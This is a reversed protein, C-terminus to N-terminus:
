DRALLPPLPRDPGTLLHLYQRLNHSVDTPSLSWAAPDWLVDLHLADTQHRCQLAFTGQPLHVNSHVGGDLRELLRASPREGPGEVVYSCGVMWHARGGRAEADRAVADSVSAYDFHRHAMSRLVVDRVHRLLARTTSRPDIRLRLHLLMSLHAPMSREGASTRNSVPVNFVRDWEGSVRALLLAQSALVAAFPSCGLARCEAALRGGDDVRELVSAGPVWHLKADPSAPELPAGCLENRWYEWSASERAASAAERSLYDSFRDGSPRSPQRGEVIAEYAEALRDELLDFGTDDAALHDVTISLLLEDETRVLHVALPPERTLDFPQAARQAFARLGYTLQQTTTGGHVALGEIDPEWGPFHQRWGEPTLVLRLRFADAERVVTRLAAQLASTDTSPPLRYIRQVPRGLSQAHVGVHHIWRQGCSLPHLVAVGEGAIETPM